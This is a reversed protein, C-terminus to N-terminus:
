WNSRRPYKQASGSEVGLLGTKLRVTASFSVQAFISFFCYLPNSRDAAAVAQKSPEAYAIAGYVFISSDLSEIQLRLIPAILM